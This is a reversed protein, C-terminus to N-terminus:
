SQQEAVRRRAEAVTAHFADVFALGAERVDARVAEDKVADELADFTEKVAVSLRDFGERTAFDEESLEEETHMKLKLALASLRDGVDGWATRMDIM